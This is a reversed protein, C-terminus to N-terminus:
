KSGEQLGSWPDIHCPDIFNLIDYKNTLKVPTSYIEVNSGEKNTIRGGADGWVFDESEAAKLALEEAERTSDAEVIVVRRQTNSLVVAYKNLMKEEGELEVLRQKLFEIKDGIEKITSAGIEYTRRRQLDVIVYLQDKLERPVRMGPGFTTRSITDGIQELTNKIGEFLSKNLENIRNQLEDYAMPDDPYAKDREAKVEDIEKQIDAIEKEVTDLSIPEEKKPLDGALFWKFLNITHDVKLVEGWKGGAILAEKDQIAQELSERVEEDTRM